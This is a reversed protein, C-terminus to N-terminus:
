STLTPRHHNRHQPCYAAGKKFNIRWGDRRAGRACETRNRGVYEGFHEDKVRSEVSHQDELECYLDLAYGGVIM